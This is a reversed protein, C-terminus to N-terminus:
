LLVPQQFHPLRPRAAPLQVRLLPFVASAHHYGRHDDEGGAVRASQVSPMGCQRANGNERGATAFCLNFNVCVCVCVCVGFFFASFIFM